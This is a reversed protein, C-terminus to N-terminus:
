YAFIEYHLQKPPLGLDLLVQRVGKLMPPPGCLYVEREMFDAALTKIKAADVYQGEASYINHWRDPPALQELETKFVVDGETKNAFLLIFDKKTAALEEALSRVPTIGIGGAILLFKSQTAARTTFRGLPGDLIVKTGPKLNQIQSTFDGSRKISLRLYEGNPAASFSFPHTYWMGRRLFTVNVFQGPEFKYQALNRGRIYVSQVDHTEIVVKEVEFRHRYFLYLPRIFRYLLLLGFILYNLTLWYYLPWGFSVDATQTQHDLALFIAVYLALHSFYWTEYRLKRRIVAISICIVIVFIILAAAALAVDEWNTLFSMFQGLLSNNNKWAYGLTLLFPHCFLVGALSYGLTRHIRNLKDHGFEREIPKMRGILVLQVLIFYEMLLGALRGFAIAVGSQNVLLSHSGSWWIFGIIGLNIFFLAYLVLRRFM